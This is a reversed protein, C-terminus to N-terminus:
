ANGVITNMNQQLFIINDGFCILFKALFTLSNDLNFINHNTEAFIIVMNKDAFFPLVIFQRFLINLASGPTVRRDITKDVFCELM